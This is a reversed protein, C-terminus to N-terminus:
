CLIGEKGPATHRPDLDSRIPSKFLTQEYLANDCCTLMRQGKMSVNWHVLCAVAMLDDSARLRLCQEQM